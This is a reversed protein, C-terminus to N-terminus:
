FLDGDGMTYYLRQLQAIAEALDWYANEVALLVAMVQREFEEKSIDYNTRAITIDRNTAMKGLNRLLPQSFTM